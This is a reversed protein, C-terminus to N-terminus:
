YSMKQELLCFYQYKKRLRELLSGIHAQCKTSMCCIALSYTAIKCSQKGRFVMTLFPADSLTLRAMEEITYPKDVVPNTM